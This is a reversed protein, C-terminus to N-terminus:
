SILGLRMATGVASARDRVELNAFIHRLHTKVTSPSVFLLGAIEQTPHGEAVLQLVERERPTLRPVAQDASTVLPLPPPRVERLAVLHRGPAFGWCARFEVMRQSGDDRMLLGRGELEGERKLVGWFRHLVELGDPPTYQEMRRGVLVDAPAGLLAAAPQNVSVYHRADDVVLLGELAIRCLLRVREDLGSGEDSSGSVRRPGLASLRQLFYGM